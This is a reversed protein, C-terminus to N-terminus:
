VLTGHSPGLFIGERLSMAFAGMIRIRQCQTFHDLFEDKIIGISGCYNELRSCARAQDAHTKGTVEGERSTETAALDALLINRQAATSDRFSRSDANIPENDSRDDDWSHADSVDNM